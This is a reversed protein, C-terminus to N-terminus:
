EGCRIASIFSEWAETKPTSAARKVEAKIENVTDRKAAEIDTTKALEAERAAQVEAIADVPSAKDRLGLAAIEQGMTTARALLKSRTGLAQLTAVDGEAFARREVAGFVVNRLLGEPPARQGMAVSKAYEYDTDVLEQAKPVQEKWQVANYEPLSGFREALGEEIAKAEVGRALGRVKTEGTGEVTRMTGSGAPRSPKGQEVSPAPQEPAASGAQVETAAEPEPEPTARAERLAEEAEAGALKTLGQHPTFAYVQEGKTAIFAGDRDKTAAQVGEVKLGKVFGVNVTNGPQWDQEAKFRIPRGQREFLGNYGRGMRARKPAAEAQAQAGADGLKQEGTPSGPAVEAEAEPSAAVPAIHAEEAAQAGAEGEPSREPAPQVEAEAGPKEGPKPTEEAEAAQEPLNPAMENAARYAQSVEPSLERMALDADMMRGRAQAMEPTDDSLLTDLKDYAEAVKDLLDDPASAAMAQLREEFAGSRAVADPELGILENLNRRAEIVEPREERSESALRNLEDRAADRDAALADYREFTDPDIKRALAHLDPTPPEPPPPGDMGAEEAADARAQVNEPTPPQVGYFGAEGEGVVGVARAENAQAVRQASKAEAALDATEKIEAMHSALGVEPVEPIAGEQMTELIDSAASAMSGGRLIAPKGEDEQNAIEQAGGQLAGIVAGPTRVAIDAWEAAPRIVAENFSKLFTEHGNAYDNFVGAKTLAQQTDQDLGIPRAGWADKAGYGVANLIKAGSNMLSSWLTDHAAGSQPPGMPPPGSPVAFFEEATPLNDQPGPM